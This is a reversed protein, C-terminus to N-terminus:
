SERVVVFGEKMNKKYKHPQLVLLYFNTEM